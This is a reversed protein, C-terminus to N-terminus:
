VVPGLTKYPHGSPLNGTLGWKHALYGEIKDRTATSTGWDDGSVYIIEAIDGDIVDVLSNFRGGISLNQTGTGIAANPTLAAPTNTHSGGDVRIIQQFGNSAVDWQTYHCLILWDGPSVQPQSDWGAAYEGTYQSIGGYGLWYSFTNRTQTTSTAAVLGINPLYNSVSVMAAPGFANTGNHQTTRRFVMFWSLRSPNDGYINSNPAYMGCGVSPSGYTEDRCRIVPLGNLANDEWTPAKSANGSAVVPHPSLVGSQDEWRRAATGSSTIISGGTDSDYVGSDAALWMRLGSSISSPTWPVSSAADQTVTFTQGGATITATRSSTITNADVSYSIM